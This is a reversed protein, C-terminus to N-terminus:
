IDFVLWYHNDLNIIISYPHTEYKIIYTSVIYKICSLSPFECLGMLACILVFLHPHACALVVPYHPGACVVSHVHAPASLCGHTCPCIFLPFPPCAYVSPLCVHLALPPLLLLWPHVCGHLCGSWYLHLPFVCVLLSWCSHNCYSSPPWHSPSFLLSLSSLCILTITVSSSSCVFSPSPVHVLPAAITPTPTAVGSAAAAM